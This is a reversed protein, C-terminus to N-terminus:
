NHTLLSVRETDTETCTSLTQVETIAEHAATLGAEGSRATLGVDVVAGAVGAAVGAGADIADVVEGAPARQAEHTLVARHAATGAVLEGAVVAAGTVGVERPRHTLTLWVVHAGPTLVVHPGRFRGCFWGPITIGWRRKDGGNGETQHRQGQQHEGGDM